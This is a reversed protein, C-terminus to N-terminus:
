KKDKHLIARLKILYNEGYDTLKWYTRADDHLHRNGSKKRILGLALLQIIIQRLDEDNIVVSWADGPWLWPELVCRLKQESAGTLLSPGLQYFLEDWYTDRQTHSPQGAERSRTPDPKLSLAYRIKFSDKGQALEKVGEPPQVRSEKLASELEDIRNRHTVITQPDTAYKARVWGEAPSNKILKNVSRSIKGSLDEATTWSKSLRRKVKACFADLQIKKQVDKESKSSPISGPDGHFFGIIPKDREVAYDYEKETYSKGEVDTSGYCGGIIVIYYDCEDIVRKIFEWQEEDAAPFLEMGSPICDLELLAQIVQQREERLDDYTSSVFVQYRKDM